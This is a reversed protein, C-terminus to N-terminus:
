FKIEASEAMIPQAPQADFNPATGVGIIQKIISLSQSLQALFEANPIRWNTGPMMTIVIHDAFMQYHLGYYKVYPLRIGPRGVIPVEPYIEPHSVIIERGRALNFGGLRKLIKAFIGAIGLILMRAHKKKSLIFLGFIDHPPLFRRAQRCAQSQSDIAAKLLTKAQMPDISGNEVYETFRIVEPTTVIATVLDMCRYKSMTLFQEIKAMEGTLKRTALQLALIFTPVPECHNKGFFDKGIGEITFSADQNDLILQIDRQASQRWGLPVNWKLATIPLLSPSAPSAAPPVPITTARRQMEAAGRMMTNGDLYTSFNCYTCAKSNGFIVFQLSSHFWRNDFNTAHALFAAKAYSRPQQDLDLCVTFLSHKILELNQLNLPLKKLAGFLRYQVLNSAATIIGPAPEAFKAPHQRADEMIWELSERIQGFVAPARWDTITLLYIRRAVIITIQSDFKSKFIRFRKGDMVLSTGFFNPYQGMELPEGHLQDPPLEGSMVEEYFQRAALILTAAREAPTLTRPDDLLAMTASIVPAYLMPGRQNIQRLAAEMRDPFQRYYRSFGTVVMVGRALAKVWTKNQFGLQAFFDESYLEAIPVLPPQRYKANFEYIDTTRETAEM